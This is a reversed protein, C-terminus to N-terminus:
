KPIQKTVGAKRRNHAEKWAVLQWRLINVQFRCWTWPAIRSSYHRFLAKRCRIRRVAHDHSFQGEHQRYFILPQKLTVVKAGSLKLAIAIEKDCSDIVRPNYGGLELFTQRRCIVNSGQVGPNRVLLRQISLNGDFRKGGSKDEKNTYVHTIVADAGEKEALGVATELYDVDWSDDDDLMAVWRGQTHYIGTSRSIPARIGIPVETEPEWEVLRVPVESDVYEAVLEQTEKRRVDSVVIIESPPRTQNRASDIADRLFHERAHTIIVASISQGGVTTDSMAVGFVVVVKAQGDDSNWVAVSM